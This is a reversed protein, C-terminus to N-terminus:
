ENHKKKIFYTAPRCVSGAIFIKKNFVAGRMATAAPCLWVKESFCDQCQLVRQVAQKGSLKLNQQVTQYCIRSCLDVQVCWLQGM